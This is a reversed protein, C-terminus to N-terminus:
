ILVNKANRWLLDFHSQALNILTPTNSWLAPTEVPYPIPYTVICVLEKDFVAFVAKPYFSISRVQLSGFKQLKQLNRIIASDTKLNEPFNTIYRIKVGRKLVDEYEHKSNLFAYEFGEWPIVDDITSSANKMANIFANLNAIGKPILNFHEINEQFNIKKIIKLDDTLKKAMAQIESHERNRQSLLLQIGDKISIAKFLDGKTTLKREVLGLHQLDKVIRYINGRDTKSAQSIEKASLEGFKTLTTYVRAQSLTLGLKRFLRSEEQFQNKKNNSSEM